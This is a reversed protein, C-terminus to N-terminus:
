PDTKIKPATRPPHKDVRLLILALYDGAPATLIHRM